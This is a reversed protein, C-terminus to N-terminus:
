EPWADPQYGIERLSEIVLLEDKAPDWTSRGEQAATIGERILGLDIEGYDRRVFSAEDLFYCTGGAHRDKLTDWAATQAEDRSDFGRHWEGAPDIWAWTGM